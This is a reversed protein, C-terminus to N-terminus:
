RNIMEKFEKILQFLNDAKDQIEALRKERLEIADRLAKRATEGEELIKKVYEKTLPTEDTNEPLEISM